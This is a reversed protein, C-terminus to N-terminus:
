VYKKIFEMPSEGSKKKFLRSFYAYDEYGLELAINALSNNTYFFMRKAELMVRDSILETTTKGLVTRTIRNLHKTSINMLGAYQRASKLTLFNKEILTELETIKESYLNTKSIKILNFQSYIRTLEIYTLDILNLIKDQRFLLEENTYEEQVFRFKEEIQQFENPSLQIFPTNKISFFFPYDSLSKHLFYLEYFQKSHFFIYGETDESLTWHHTQGPNICFLSGKKVTYTEFDIEHLGKGKTFLVSLYFNHKHPISIDKHYEKIHKQLTNSYFFNDEKQNKFQNIDLIQIKEM